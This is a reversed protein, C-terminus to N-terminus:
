SSGKARNGPKSPTDKGIDVWPVNRHPSVHIEYEGAQGVKPMDVIVYHALPLKLLDNPPPGWDAAIQPNFVACAKPHQDVIRLIQDQMQPNFGKMWATLNMGNPTPVQSWFNLSGMGPLTFLVDCNARLNAALFEFNAEQELPLHLSASGYLASAPTRDNRWKAVHHLMVFLLLLALLGGPELATLLTRIIRGKAEPVLHHLGRAGDALCLVAWLMAPSIAIGIQSGAVPYIQLLQTAALGTVFL